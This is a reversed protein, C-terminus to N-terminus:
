PPSYRTGRGSSLYCLLPHFGFGGKYNGAAREKESHATLLSADIDLTITEPRAGADWARKLPRRAPSALRKWRWVVADISKIARHATSESAVPGLLPEQGRLVGLDTLCDGGDAVSVALDRVVFGPAM